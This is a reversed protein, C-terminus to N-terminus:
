CTVTVTKPLRKMQSQCEYTSWMMDVSQHIHSNTHSNTHTSTHINDVYLGLTDVQTMGAMSGSHVAQIYMGM